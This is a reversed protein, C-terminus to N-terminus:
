RFYKYLFIVDMYHRWHVFFITGLGLERGITCYNGIVIIINDIGIFVNINQLFNNFVVPALDQHSRNTYTYPYAGNFLAFIRRKRVVVVSYQWKVAIIFYDLWKRVTGLITCIICKRYRIQIWTRSFINVNITALVSCIDM